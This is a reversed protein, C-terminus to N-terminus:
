SCATLHYDAATIHCILFGCIMEAVRRWGFREFAASYGRLATKREPWARGDGRVRIYVGAPQVVPKGETRALSGRGARM